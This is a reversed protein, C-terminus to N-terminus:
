FTTAELTSLCDGLEYIACVIHYFSSAPAAEDIFSGDVMMKDRWLGLTPVALFRHLADAANSASRLYRAREKGKSLVALRIASKLWETQPWLRAINDHLSFDDLLAMVAVKRDACIGYAEGIEFLRKAHTLAKENSRRDGWRALLWAWEFQHGPEMIRGKEGDYPTWDANFFERLGGSENDIFHSMCLHAIEDALDRWESQKFGNTEECALAAEFLHMHPNSCLPLKAPNAEHFGAHEHSYSQRLASLMSSAREDMEGQLSPYVKAAYCFALIAFAQNYLDFTSDIIEGQSSALAGYFGDLRRYVRDFYQLGELVLPQWDGAWGRTGAEAFCYIQRPHVRGRRDTNTPFGALDLTEVFGGAEGQFGNTRWLPLAQNHLWTQFHLAHHSIPSLSVSM